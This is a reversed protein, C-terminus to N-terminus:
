GGLATKRQPAAASTGLPNGLITKSRGRRNADAIARRRQQERAGSDDKSPPTTTEGGGFVSSM